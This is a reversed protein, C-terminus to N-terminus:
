PVSLVSLQKNDDVITLIAGVEAGTMNQATGGSQKITLSMFEKEAFLVHGHKVMGKQRARQEFKSPYYTSLHEMYTGDVKKAARLIRNISSGDMEDVAPAGQRVEQFPLIFRVHRSRLM